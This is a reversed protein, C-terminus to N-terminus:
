DYSLLNLQNHFSVLDTEMGAEPFVQLIAIREFLM